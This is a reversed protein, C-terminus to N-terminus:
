VRSPSRLQRHMQKNLQHTQAATLAHFFLGTFKDTYEALNSTKGHHSRLIVGEPLNRRAVRTLGLTESSGLAEMMQTFSPEESIDTRVLDVRRLM